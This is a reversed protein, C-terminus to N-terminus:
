RKTASIISQDDFIYGGLYYRDGFVATDRAEGINGVDIGGKGKNGFTPDLQGSSLLRVIFLNTEFITKRLYGAIVIKEDDMKPKFLGLSFGEEIVTFGNDGFDFDQKGTSTLRYIIARTSVNSLNNSAVLISRGQDDVTIGRNILSSPEESYNVVSIGENGFSTDVSGDAFFAITASGFNRSSLSVSASLMIRGDPSFSLNGGKLPKEYGYRVIGDTGFTIDPEGNPLYRLLFLDNPTIYGSVYIRNSTDVLMETIYESTLPSIRDERFSGENKFTADVKGTRDIRSIVVYPGQQSGILIKDDQFAVNNGVTNLPFETYYQGNDGFSNILKGNSDMLMVAAQKRNTELTEFHGVIVLDGDPNVDIDRGDILVSTGAFSSQTTGQEGFSTDTIDPITTDPETTETSNSSDGCGILFLSIFLFLTQFLYQM